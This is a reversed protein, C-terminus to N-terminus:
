TFQFFFYYNAEDPRSGAVKLITAYHRLFWAIAHGWFLEMRLEIQFITFFTSVNRMFLLVINFSIKYFQTNSAARSSIWQSVGTCVNILTQIEHFATLIKDLQSAISNEYQVKNRSALTFSLCAV